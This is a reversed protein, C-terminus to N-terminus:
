TNLVSVSSHHTLSCSGATQLTACHLSSPLCSFTQMMPRSSIASLLDQDLVFIHLFEFFTTSDLRVDALEVGSHSERTSDDSSRTTERAPAPPVNIVPRSETTTDVNVDAVNGRGWVIFSEDTSTHALTRDGAQRKQGM